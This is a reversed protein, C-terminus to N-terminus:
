HAYAAGSLLKRESIAIMQSAFADTIPHGVAEELGAWQGDPNCEFFVHEGTPTVALDFVGVDLAFAKMFSKLKVCVDDGIEVIRHMGTKHAWMRWDLKTLESEQSDIQASIVTEGFVHVRLEHAKVIEAQFIGPVAKIVVENALVEAYDFTAVPPCGREDYAGPSLPKYLVRDNFATSIHSFSNGIVTTPILLGLDRAVSLQLPKLHVEVPDAGANVIHVHPLTRKIIQLTSQLCSRWEASWFRFRERHTAVDAYTPDAPPKVRAWVVAVDSRALLELWPWRVAKESSAEIAIEDTYHNFVEVAYGRQAFAAAALRIHPDAPQGILLATKKMGGESKLVVFQLAGRTPFLLEERCARELL